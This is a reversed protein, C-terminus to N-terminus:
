AAPPGLLRAASAAAPAPAHGLLGYHGECCPPGSSPGGVPALTGAGLQGGAGGRSPEEFRPLLAHPAVRRALRTPPPVGDGRRPPQSLWGGGWEAATITGLKEQGRHKKYQNQEKRKNGNCPSSLTSSMQLRNLGETVTQKSSAGWAAGASNLRTYSGQPQVAFEKM